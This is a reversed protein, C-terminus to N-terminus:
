ASSSPSVTSRTRRRSEDLMIALVASIRCPRAAASGALSLRSYHHHSATQKVSVNAGARPSPDVAPFRRVDKRRDLRLVRPRPRRMNKARQSPQTSPCFACRSSRMDVFSM